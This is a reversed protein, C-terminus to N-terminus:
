EWRWLALAERERILLDGGSVGLHAWTDAESIKRRDLLEFKAPNAALLLLEGREDLALIRRGNAALSWYKGFKESTEWKLRGGTVDVCAARQNRLHFYAHGDVLVPSAMYGELKLKWTEQLQWRDGDRAARWGQTEGGYASTFLTDPGTVTPTLINMGRFAKIPQQWLVRGTVAELGALANRTQVLLQPTGGLTALVPSSFASGLMGGGDELSRWQVTGTAADLRVVGGGAQVYVANGAVLPSSVFGFDPLPQKFQAPFDVRWLERGSAADLCVLVDRMGGVFLRGDALAPTARIWDGNSRAFFPVKLYGEWQVRWVQRGTTRDLALVAEYAQDRSETTYVREADALPGSYSAGLPARWVQRLRDAKLSDPWAPGPVQGDRTPGRWQPWDAATATCALLLASVFPHVTRTFM